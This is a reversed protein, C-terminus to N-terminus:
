IIDCKVRIIDCKVRIIDCKVRIINCQVRTTTPPQTRSLVACVRWDCVYGLGCVCWRLAARGGWFCVLTAWGVFVGAYGLGGGVCVLTAWGVCVCWFPPTMTEVRYEAKAAPASFPLTSVM